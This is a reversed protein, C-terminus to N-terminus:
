SSVHKVSVDSLNIAMNTQLFLILIVFIEYGVKHRSGTRANSIVICSISGCINDCFNCLSLFDEHQLQTTACDQCLGVM